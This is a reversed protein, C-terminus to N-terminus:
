FIRKEKLCRRLAALAKGIRRTFGAFSLRIGLIERIERYPLGDGHHLAVIAREPQDLRGMCEDLATLEEDHTAHRDPPDDVPAAQELKLRPKALEALCLNHAMRLLLGKVSSRIVPKNELRLIRVFVEQAMESARHTDRLRTGCYRRVADFYTVYLKDLAELSTPANGARFQDWLRIADQSSLRLGSSSEQTM